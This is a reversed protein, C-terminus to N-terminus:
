DKLLEDISVDFVESLKLLTDMDPEIKGKEWYSVKRQTTNLRAALDAQRWQKLRRLECLNKAFNNKM